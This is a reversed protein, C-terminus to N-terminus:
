QEQGFDAMRWTRRLRLLDADYTATFPQESKGNSQKLAVQITTVAHAFDGQPPSFQINLVRAVMQGGPPLGRAAALKVAGAGSGLQSAYGPTALSIMTELHTHTTAPSLDAYALAFRYVVNRASGPQGSSAPPLAGGRNTPDDDDDGGTDTDTASTRIASASPTTPTTPSSTQLASATTPTSTTVDPDHLGCGTCALLAGALLAWSLVVRSATQVRVRM